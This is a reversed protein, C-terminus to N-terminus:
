CNSSCNGEISSPKSIWEEERGFAVPPRLARRVVQGTERSLMALDVSSTTIIESLSTSLTLDSSAVFLISITRCLLYKLIM